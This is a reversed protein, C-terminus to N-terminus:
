PQYDKIRKYTENIAEKDEGGNKWQSAHKECTPDACCWYMAQVERWIDAKQVTKNYLDIYHADLKRRIEKLSFRCWRCTAHAKKVHDGCDHGEEKYKALANDIKAKDLSNKLAEYRKYKKGEKPWNNFSLITEIKTRLKDIGQTYELTQEEFSPEHSTHTCFEKTKLAEDFAKLLSDCESKLKDYAEDKNEVSIQITCTIISHVKKKKPCFINPKPKALHIPITCKYTQGEEVIIDPFTYREGGYPSIKVFSEKIRINEVKKSSEGIGPEFYIYQKRLEKKSLSRDFLLFEFDYSNNELEIQVPTCGREDPKGNIKAFIRGHENDNYDTIAAEHTKDDDLHFKITIQASASVIALCWALLTFLIKRM